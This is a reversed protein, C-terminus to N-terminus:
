KKRKLYMIIGDLFDKLLLIQNFLFIMRNNNQVIQIYTKKYLINYIYM